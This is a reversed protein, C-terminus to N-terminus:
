VNGSDNFGFHDLTTRIDSNTLFLCNEVFHWLYTLFLKPRINISEKINRVFVCFFQTKRSYKSRQLHCIKHRIIYIYWYHYTSALLSHHFTDKWLIFNFIDWFFRGFKIEGFSLKWNLVEPIRVKQKNHRGSKSRMKAEYFLNAFCNMIEILFFVKKLCDRKSLLWVKWMINEFQTCPLIQIVIM